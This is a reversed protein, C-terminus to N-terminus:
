KVEPASEVPTSPRSFRLILWSGTAAITVAGVGLWYAWVSNPAFFLQIAFTLVVAATAAGAEHGQLELSGDKKRRAKFEAGKFLDKGTIRGTRVAWALLVAGLGVLLGLTLAVANAFEPKLLITLFQIIVIAAAVVYYGKADITTSGDANSTVRLTQRAGQQKQRNRASQTGKKRPM